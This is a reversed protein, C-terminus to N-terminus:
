EPRGTIGSKSEPIARSFDIQQAVPELDRDFDIPVVMKAIWIAIAAITAFITQHLLMPIQHQPKESLINNLPHFVYEVIDNRRDSKSPGM